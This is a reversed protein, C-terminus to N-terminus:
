ISKKQQVISQLYNKKKLSPPIISMDPQAFNLSETTNETKDIKKSFQGICTGIFKHAKSPALFISQVGELFVIELQITESMRSLVELCCHNKYDLSWSISLGSISENTVIKKLGLSTFAKGGKKLWDNPLHPCLRVKKQLLQPELGIYDQFANRVFEGVGWSNTSFPNKDLPEKKTSHSPWADRNELMNGVCGVEIIQNSLNKSLEWALDAYGCQTLASVTFGTNWAWITGNYLAADKHYKSGNDLFPHFYSDHQDLSCIGYPFLLSQTCTHVITDAIKDSIFFDSSLYTFPVTLILLQNPRCRFDPTGDSLLCDAIKGAKKSKFDSVKNEQWFYKYFNTRVLNASEYWETQIAEELIDAIYIGCLLATYWLIQIEVARNGRPCYSYGGKFSANMWTENNKHCLFGNEDTRNIRDSEIALKVSPYMKKLFDVDATYQSYELVERVFLLNSDISNYSFTNNKNYKNPIRGYTKSNENKDQNKAFFELVKRAVIFDGSSLLIGPLSIFIDRGWNEKYCLLNASSEMNISSVLFNYGVLQASRFAVNYTSNGSDIMSQRLFVDITRCHNKFREQALNDFTVNKDFDFVCCRSNILIGYKAKKDYIKAIRLCLKKSATDYGASLCRKYMFKSCLLVIKIDKPITLGETLVFGGANILSSVDMYLANNLLSLTLRIGIQPFDISYFSHHLTTITQNDFRTYLRGDAVLCVDYFIQNFSSIIGASKDSSDINMQLYSNKKDTFVFSLNKGRKLELGNIM